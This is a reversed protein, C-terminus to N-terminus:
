TGYEEGGIRYHWSANTVSLDEEASVSQQLLLDLAASFDQETKVPFCRVGDGTLCHIEPALEKDLFFHVLYTLRGFKRDIEHSTGKLVMSLVLKGRIPITPERLIVKGTKAALKWHVQRLDDGPRYERLDYNEAFGGGPKPKWNAALYKKLAPLNTVPVTDPLVLITKRLKRGVPFRILGLYDYVFSRRLSIHISGCHDALFPAHSAFTLKKGTFSEYALFKWKVPPVPLPCHARLKVSVGTNMSVKEPCVLEVKTLLISPLSLLLSVWPLFVMGLLLIWAMWQGYYLYFM